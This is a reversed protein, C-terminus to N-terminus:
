TPARRDYERRRDYEPYYDSSLHPHRDRYAPIQEPPPPYYGHPHTPYHPYSMSTAPPPPYNSRSILFCFILKKLIM